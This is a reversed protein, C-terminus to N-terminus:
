VVVTGDVDGLSNCGLQKFTRPHDADASDRRSKSRTPALPCGSATTAVTPATNEDQRVIMGVHKTLCEAFHTNSQMAANTQHDLGVFDNSRRRLMPEEHVILRMPTVHLGRFLTRSVDECTPAEVTAIGEFDAYM